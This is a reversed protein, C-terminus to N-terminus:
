KKLTIWKIEWNIEVITYADPGFPMSDCQIYMIYNSKEFITSLEKQIDTLDENKSNM